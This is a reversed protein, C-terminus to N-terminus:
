YALTAISHQLAVFFYESVSNINAVSSAVYQSKWKHVTDRAEACDHDIGQQQRSGWSVNHACMALLCGLPFGLDYSILGAIDM